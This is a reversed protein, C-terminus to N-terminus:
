IRPLELHLKLLRLMRKITACTRENVPPVNKGHKCRDIFKVIMRQAQPKTVNFEVQVLENFRRYELLTM